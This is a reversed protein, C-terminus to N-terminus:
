GMKKSFPYAGATVADVPRHHPVQGGREGNKVKNCHTRERVLYSTAQDRKASHPGLNPFRGTLWKQKKQKCRESVSKGLAARRSQGLADVWRRWRRREQRKEMRFCNATGQAFPVERNTKKKQRVGPKKESGEKPDERRSFDNGRIGVWGVGLPESKLGAKRGRV